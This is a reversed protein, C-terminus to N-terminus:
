SRLEMKPLYKIWQITIQMCYTHSPLPADTSDHENMRASISFTRSFDGTSDDIASAIPNSNSEFRYNTISNSCRSISPSTHSYTNRSSMSFLRGTRVIWNVVIFRFSEGLTWQEMWWNAEESIVNTIAQWHYIAIFKWTPQKPKMLITYLENLISTIKVKRVTTKILTKECSQVSAVPSNSEKPRKPEWSLKNWSGEQGQSLMFGFGKTGGDVRIVGLFRGFIRFGGMAVVNVQSQRRPLLVAM